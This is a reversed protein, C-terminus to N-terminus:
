KIFNEIKFTEMEINPKEWLEQNKDEFEIQLYSEWSKRLNEDKRFIMHQLSIENVKTGTKDLYSLIKPISKKYEDSTESYKGEWVTKYDEKFQKPLEYCLVIYGDPYDLEELICMGRDREADVFSNFSETNNPKFLLYVVDTEYSDETEANYLFSNIFQLNSLTVRGINLLPVLFMRSVTYKLIEENIM